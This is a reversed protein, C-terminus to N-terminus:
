FTLTLINSFGINSPALGEISTTITPDIWIVQFRFTGTFGPPVYYTVGTVISTSQHVNCTLYCSPDDIVWTGVGDLISVGLEGYPTQIRPVSDETLAFIYPVPGLGLTVNAMDAYYIRGFLPTKEVHLGRAFLTAAVGPGPSSLRHGTVAVVGGGTAKITARALGDAGTTVVVADQVEGGWVEFGVIEGAVPQGAGDLLQFVVDNKFVSDRAGVQHNGWVLAMSPTPSTSAPATRRIRRLSSGVIYYLAGDRGLVFHRAALFGSGWHAPSPQGAVPPVTQWSATLPNLRRRTLTGAVSDVVFVDDEYDTGFDSFGGSNRYRVAVVEQASSLLGIPPALGIPVAGGCAIGAVPVSPCLTTSGGDGVHLLGDSGFRISAQGPHSWSAISPDSKSGAPYSVGALSDSFDESIAIRGVRMGGYLPSPQGPLSPYSSQYLVYVHGSTAFDPDVAVSMLGGFSSNLLVLNPQLLSTSISGAQPIVVTLTGSSETQIFRGDPLQAMDTPNSVSTTGLVDVTFGPPVTQARAGVICTVLVFLTLLPRARLHRM